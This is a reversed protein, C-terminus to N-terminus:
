ITCRLQPAKDYVRHLRWSSHSQALLGPCERSHLRRPDIPVIWAVYLAEGSRLAKIDIKLLGNSARSDFLTQVQLADATAPM